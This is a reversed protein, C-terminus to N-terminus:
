ESISKHHSDSWHSYEYTLLAHDLDHNVFSVQNVYVM